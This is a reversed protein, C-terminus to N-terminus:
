QIVMIKSQYFKNSKLTYFYIGSAMDSLDLPVIHEGKEYWVRKISKIEKGNFNYIILDYFDQNDIRFKVKTFNDAPNPYSLLNFNNKTWTHNYIGSPKIVRFSDVEVSESHHPILIQASCKIIYNGETMPPLNYLMTWNYNQSGFGNKFEIFIFITDDVINLTTDGIGYEHSRIEGDIRIPINEQTTFQQNVTISDIWYSIQAISTSTLITLIAITFIIKFKKM